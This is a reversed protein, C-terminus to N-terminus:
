GTSRRPVCSPWPRLPRAPRRARSDTSTRPTPAACTTSRSRSRSGQAPEVALVQTMDAWIDLYEPGSVTAAQGSTWGLDATTRNSWLQLGQTPVIGIKDVFDAFRGGQALLADCMTPEDNLPKYAGMSIALVVVDFDEGVKLVEEGGRALRM